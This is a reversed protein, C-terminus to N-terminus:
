LNSHYISLIYYYSTKKYRTKPETFLATLGKGTEKTYM